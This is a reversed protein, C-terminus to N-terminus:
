ATSGADVVLDTGTISNASDGLLFAVSAAVEEVSALRGLPSRRKITALNDDDITSTMDTQMYGPSVSNVTIGAKGLERALSKTFGLLGSKTAAYVSLGSFGTHGIISAINIIRGCRNLLMSRSAHKTLLITGLLNVNILGSIESEHMTGLVGAHGLAANNVLGYLHKGDRTLSRVTERIQIRNALDIEVFHVQGPVSREMLEALPQSLRRGTAIVQYGDSALQRTIALGLGRTGGSVLVRRQENPINM